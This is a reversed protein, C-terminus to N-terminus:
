HLTFSFENFLVEGSYRLKCRHIIQHNALFGCIELFCHSRHLDMGLSMRAGTWNASIPGGKSARVALAYPM